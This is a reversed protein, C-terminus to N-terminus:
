TTYHFRPIGNGICYLRDQCVARNVHFLKELCTNVGPHESIALNIISFTLGEALFAHDRLVPPSEHCYVRLVSLDEILMNGGACLYYLSM